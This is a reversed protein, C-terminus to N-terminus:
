WSYLRGRVRLSAAAAPIDVTETTFTCDHNDSPGCHSTGSMEVEVHESCRSAMEVQVHEPCGGHRHEIRRRLVRGRDPSQKQDHGEGAEHDEDYHPRQNAHRQPPRTLGPILRRWLIETATSNLDGPRHRGHQDDEHEAEHRCFDDHGVLATRAARATRTFG